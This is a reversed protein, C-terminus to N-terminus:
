SRVELRRDCQFIEFEKLNRSISQWPPAGDDIEAPSPQKSCFLHGIQIITFTDGKSDKSYYLDVDLMKCPEDTATDQEVTNAVTLWGPLHESTRNERIRFTPVNLRRRRDLRSRPDM